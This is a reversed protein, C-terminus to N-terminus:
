PINLLGDYTQQEIAETTDVLLGEDSLLYYKVPVFLEFARQLGAYMGKSVGRDIFAACEGAVRYFEWGANMGMAREGPVEDRLVGPQTYLLHSAYPADGRLLIARMCRRAYEVNEEIGQPTDAAYPSEVIVIM